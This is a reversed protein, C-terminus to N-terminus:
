NGGSSCPTRKREGGSWPRSLGPAFRAHPGALRCFSCWLTNENENAATFALRPVSQGTETSPSVPIAVNEAPRREVDLIQTPPPVSVARETTAGDSRKAACLFNNLTELSTEAVANSPELSADPSVGNTGVPEHQRRESVDHNRSEWPVDNAQSSRPSLDTATKLAERSGSCESCSASVDGSM